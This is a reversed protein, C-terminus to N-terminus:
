KTKLITILETIQSQSVKLREVLESQINLLAIIDDHTIAVSGSTKDFLNNRLDNDKFPKGEGTQLWTLNVNFVNDLIHRISRSIKNRGNYISSLTSQQVGLANAFATQNNFDLLRQLEKLREIESM